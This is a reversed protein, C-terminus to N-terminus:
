CIRPAIAAAHAATKIPSAGVGASAESAAEQRSRMSLTAEACREIESPIRAPRATSGSAERVAVRAGARSNPRTTKAEGSRVTQRAGDAGAGLRAGGAAQDSKRTAAEATGSEWEKC